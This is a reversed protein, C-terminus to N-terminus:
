WPFDGVAYVCDEQVEDDAYQDDSTQEYVRLNSYGEAYWKDCQAIAEAQTNFYEDLQDTFAHYSTVLM